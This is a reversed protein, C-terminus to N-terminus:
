GAIAAASKGVVRRSSKKRGAELFPLDPQLDSPPRRPLGRSVREEAWRLFKFTDGAGALLQEITLIEVRPLRETASEFWGASAAESRMERTPKQLTILVGLAARTRNVTGVLDRVDRPAVKGSKISVIMLKPPSNPDDLFYKKGDIGQDGSKRETVRAGLKTVAWTQFQFRDGLALKEAEDVTTPEGHVEYASRFGPGLLRAFRREIPEQALFTIDIGIWGRGLRQSVAIATGCGCFPDLVLANPNSSTLVVRELLAEPKQTPYGLREAARSGIAPIDDWLNQLKIGPSEDLYMKLRLAGSPQKPFHLRNEKDYKRLRHVDCVWGNPHPRYTIGNSAAFPFRLNPRPSPNRLTVSQWRRGDPDCFKFSTQVYQPPFPNYQQNWVYRESKTYVLLIDCVSGFNRSVNGHSHTRKWTIENLFRGTGFVADMLAKLYHSANPDCHLYISATPKMVRRLEQLRPAMMVLYALIDSRPVLREFTQLVEAMQGGQSILEYLIRQTEDSWRWSDEFAQIQSSSLRGDREAFLMNYQKHSNFPPDLYVLDVSESRIYKHLVDLNDGFYLHNAL